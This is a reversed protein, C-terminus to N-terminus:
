YQLCLALVLFLFYNQYKGCKCGGLERQALELKTKCSWCRKKNKQVPREVPLFVDGGEEEEEKKDESVEEKKVLNDTSEESAGSRFLGLQELLQSSQGGGDAKSAKVKQLHDISLIM